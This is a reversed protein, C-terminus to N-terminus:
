NVRQNQEGLVGYCVQENTVTGNDSKKSKDKTANASRGSFYDETSNKLRGFGDLFADQGPLKFVEVCAFLCFVTLLCILM